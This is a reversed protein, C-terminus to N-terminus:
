FWISRKIPGPKAITNRYKTLYESLHWIRTRRCAIGKRHTRYVTNHYEELWAYDRSNKGQLRINIFNEIHLLKSENAILWYISVHMKRPIFRPHHRDMRRMWLTKMGHCILLRPLARIFNVIDVFMLFDSIIYLVEDPMNQLSTNPQDKSPEAYPDRCPTASSLHYNLHYRSEFKRRCDDCYIKM